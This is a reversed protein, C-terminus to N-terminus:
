AHALAFLRAITKKESSRIELLGGRLKGAHPSTQHWIMPVIRTQGGRLKGAYHRSLKTGFLVAGSPTVEAVTVCLLGDHVAFV